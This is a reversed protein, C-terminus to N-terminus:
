IELYGLGRLIHGTHARAIDRILVPLEDDPIPEGDTRPDLAYLFADRQPDEVGWRSTVAWGKVNRDIWHNTNGSSQLKQVCAASIQLNATKIPGPCGGQTANNKQHSGKAEGIALVGPGACLWDPLDVGLGLRRTVRLRPSFYTPARDIPAFWTLGHYRVLYARAFFRGLLGSIGRRMEIGRGPGSEKWVLSSNGSVLLEDLFTAFPNTIPATQLIEGMAQVAVDHIDIYCEKGPEGSHDRLEAPCASPPDVIYRITHATM